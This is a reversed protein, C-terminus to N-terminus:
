GKLVRQLESAAKEGVAKQIQPLLDVLAQYGSASEVSLNLMFGRLGLGATLRTALTKGLQYREQDTLAPRSSPPESDPGERSLASPVTNAMASPSSVLPVLPAPHEPVELRLFGEEVMYDIDSQTVGMGATAVLLQAASKRGDVLIFMSRQRASFRPSREKFALQGEDTKILQM